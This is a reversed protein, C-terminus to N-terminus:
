FILKILEYLLNVLFMSGLLFLVAVVVQLVKSYVPSHFTQIVKAEMEKSKTYVPLYVTPNQINVYLYSIVIKHKPLLRDFRIIKGGQPTDEVSYRIDPFVNILPLQNHCVEVDEATGRGNNQVIITHTGITFPPPGPLFFSSINTLYSVLSPRKTQIKYLVIGAVILVVLEIGYQFLTQTTMLKNGEQRSIKDRFLALHFAFELLM